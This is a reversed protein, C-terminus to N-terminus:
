GPSGGHFDAVDEADFAQEVRAGVVDASEHRGLPGRDELAADGASHRRAEADATGCEVGSAGGRLRGCFGKDAM